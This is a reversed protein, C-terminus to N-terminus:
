PPPDQFDQDDTASGALVREGPFRQLARDRRGDVARRSVGGGRGDGHVDLDLGRIHVADYSEHRLAVDAQRDDAGLGRHCCSQGIPQAGRPAQNEAGAGGGTSDFAAFRKGFVQHRSAAHGRRRVFHKGVWGLGFIEDLPLTSGEDDLSVAQGLSFARHHRLIDLFGKAANVLEHHLPGDTL